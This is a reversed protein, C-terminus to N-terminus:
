LKQRKGILKELNYFVDTDSLREWTEEFISKEYDDAFSTVWVKEISAIVSFKAGLIKAYSRAQVKVQELQKDSTISRKAEIVTYGSYHGNSGSPNIVFDPILAYNHNGIEVYMQQVYDEENFGLRTLLPKILKEEVEKENAYHGESESVANELKPLEKDATSAIYNYESPKLEVGNVGQMNKAVIPMKGLIPNNKM